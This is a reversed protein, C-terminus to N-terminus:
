LQSSRQTGEIRRLLKRTKCFINGFINRNWDKVKKTFHSIADQLTTKNSFANSVIDIFDPHSM